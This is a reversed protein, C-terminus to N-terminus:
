LDTLHKLLKKYKLIQEKGRIGKSVGWSNSCVFKINQAKHLNDSSGISAAPADPSVYLEWDNQAVSVLSLPFIGLAKKVSLIYDRILVIEKYEDCFRKNWFLLVYHFDNNKLLGMLTNVSLMIRRKIIRLKKELFIGLPKPFFELLRFILKVLVYLGQKILPISEKTVVFEALAPSSEPPPMPVKLPTSNENFFENLRADFDKIFRQYSYRPNLAVEEYAQRTITDWKKADRLCGVIEEMNSHDKKLPVYHRWPTLVGSYEGEYLIMLTGLAASEFCRPSIENLKIKGDLGKFFNEEIEEFSADPHEGEYAEVNKQIEGSFDFVSAGTECGLVAKSNQLFKIWDEGYVRDKEDFSVDLKLGYKQGDKLFREAIMWKERALRGYWASLKRARYRVDISREAYPVKPYNLLNEPAFGTLTKIKKLNPLKSLPYVNEVENEPICTFLIDAKFYSLNDIVDNIRRYEDQIFVIKKATTNRLLVRLWAPCRDDHFISITYHVIVADFKDIEELSIPQSFIDFYFISHASYNHFAEIHDYVTSAIKEKIYLFAINM